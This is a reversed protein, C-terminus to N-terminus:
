ILGRAVVRLGVIDDLSGLVLFFKLSVTILEIALDLLALLLDLSKQVCKRVQLHPVLVVTVLEHEASLTSIKLALLDKVVLVSGGSLSEEALLSLKLLQVSVEVGSLLLEVLHPSVTMLVLSLVVVNSAHTLLEVLDNALAILLLFLEVLITVSLKVIHAGHSAM